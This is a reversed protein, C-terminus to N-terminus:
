EVFVKKRVREMEEQSIGESYSDGFVMKSMERFRKEVYEEFAGPEKKLAEELEVRQTKLDYEKGALTITSM